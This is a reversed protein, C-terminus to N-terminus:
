ERLRHIAEIDAMFKEISANILEDWTKGLEASYRNLVELTSFDYVKFPIIYARKELEEKSLMARFALEDM